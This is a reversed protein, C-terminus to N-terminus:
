GEEDQYAKEIAEYIVRLPGGEPGTVEQRDPRNYIEPRHSKLFFIAMTTDDKFARERASLELKDISEQYAEEWEQAFKESRKKWRIVTIRDVKAYRASESVNGTERMRSLFAERWDQFARQPKRKKTTSSTVSM